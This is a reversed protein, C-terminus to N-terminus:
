SLASVIVMISRRVLETLKLAHLDSRPVQSFRCGTAAVALVLVWHEKSPDFSPKHIFPMTDHFHEFYLQIFCNMVEVSPLVPSGFSRYVPQNAHNQVNEVIEEYKEYSLRGVHAFNEMELMSDPVGASETAPLGADMQSPIWSLPWPSPADPSEDSTESAYAPEMSEALSGKRAQSSSEETLDTAYHHHPATSLCESSGYNWSDSGFDGLWNWFDDFAQSPIDMDVDYQLGAINNLTDIGLEPMPYQFDSFAGNTTLLLDHSAIGLQSNTLVSALSTSDTESVPHLQEISSRDNFTNQLDKSTEESLSERGTGNDSPSSLENGIFSPNSHNVRHTFTQGSPVLGIVEDEGMGKVNPAIDSSGSVEQSSDRTKAKRTSRDRYDCQTERKRCRACPKEGDCKTRSTACAICASRIRPPPKRINASIEQHAHIPLHRQLSDRCLAVMDAM